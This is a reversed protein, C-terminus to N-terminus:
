PESGAAAVADVAAVTRAIALPTELAPSELTCGAANLHGGGGFAAAVSRVDVAGKSRLSLRTVGGLTKVMIVAQIDRSALPMNIVGELDDPPCGTERILADDLDLLAVRGKGELRMTDLLRGTLRIKGPSSSQYVDSAIRAM